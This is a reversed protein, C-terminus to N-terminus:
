MTDMVGNIRRLTGVTRWAPRVGDPQGARLRGPRACSRVLLRTRSWPPPGPHLQGGVAATSPASSACTDYDLSENGPNARRWNYLAYSLAYEMFPKADLKQAIQTLPVALQRPLRDRGLGYDGTRRLNLECPELLYASAAFTLDRYLAAVERSDRVASVDYLPLEKDIAGGFEGRSLLGPTGDAKVLAYRCSASPDTSSPLAALTRAPVHRAYTSGPHRRVGADGPDQVADCDRHRAFGAAM